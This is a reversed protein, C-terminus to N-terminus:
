VGTARSARGSVKDLLAALADGDADADGEWDIVDNAGSEHVRQLVAARHDNSLVRARAVGGVVPTPSFACKKNKHTPSRRALSRRASSHTTSSRWM